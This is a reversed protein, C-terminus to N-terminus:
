KWLRGRRKLQFDEVNARNSVDATKQEGVQYMKSNPTVIHQPKKSDIGINDNATNFLTNLVNLLTIVAFAVAITTIWTSAMVEYTPSYTYLESTVTTTNNVITTTTGLSEIAYGMKAIGLSGWILATSILFSLISSTYASKKNTLSLIFFLVSVIFFFLWVYLDTYGTYTIFINEGTM